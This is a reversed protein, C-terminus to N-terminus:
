SGNTLDEVERIGRRLILNQEAGRQRCLVMDVMFSQGITVRAMSSCSCRACCPHTPPSAPIERSAEARIEVLLIRREKTEGFSTAFPNILSMSLERLIISDIKM